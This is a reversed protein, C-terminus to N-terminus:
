RRAHRGGRRPRPRALLVLACGTLLLAGGLGAVPRSAQGTRALLPASARAAPTAAAKSAPAVPVAQLGITTPQCILGPCNPDGAGSFAALGVRASGAARAQITLTAGASRGAPIDGVFWLLEAGADAGAAPATAAGLQIPTGAPPQTNGTFGAVSFNSGVLIAFAITAPAVQPGANHVTLRVTTSGGLPVRTRAPTITYSLRASGTYRLQATVSNDAPDTDSGQGADPQASVTIPALQGISATATSTLEIDLTPDSGDDHGLSGLQCGLQGPQGLVPACGVTSGDSERSVGGAALALGAPLSIVMTTSPQGYGLNRVDVLLDIDRGTGLLGLQDEGSGPTLRVAIDPQNLQVTVPASSISDPTGAIAFSLTASATATSAPGSGLTATFAITHSGAPLGDSADAGTQIAIDTPDPRSLQGAPVAVGDLTVGTEAAPLEAPQHTTLLTADVATPLVITYSITISAPGHASAPASGTLQVGPTASAPRGLPHVGPAGLLGLVGPGVATIAAATLLLAGALGALRPLLRM